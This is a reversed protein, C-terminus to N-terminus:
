FQATAIMGVIKLNDIKQNIELLRCIWYNKADENSITTKKSRLEYPVRSIFRWNKNKDRDIGSRDTPEQM